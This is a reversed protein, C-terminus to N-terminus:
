KKGLFRMRKSLLLMDRLYHIDEADLWKEEFEKQQVLTAISALTKLHFARDEKTGIFVFVAKVADERATFRIGQKCRVLMLFFHDSGDIIIHPIAVFSSVATNCEKQRNKLMSFIENKDLPCIMCIPLCNIVWYSEFSMLMELVTARLSIVVLYLLRFVRSSVTGSILILLGFGM